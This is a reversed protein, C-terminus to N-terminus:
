NLSLMNRLARPFNSDINIKWLWEEIHIVNCNLGLKIGIQSQEQMKGSYLIDVPCGNTWHESHGKGIDAISFAIIAWELVRAQSIGHISSGPLSCDIPNRLTLYLQTVESENESEHLPPPFPLGSWYEQRSFGLSLLRTPQQRHPRVSNSVASM